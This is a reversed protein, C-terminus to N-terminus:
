RTGSTYVCAKREKERELHGFLRFNTIKVWEVVGYKVGNACPGMGYKKM